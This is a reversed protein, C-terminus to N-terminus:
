DFDGAEAWGLTTATDLIGETTFDANGSVAGLGPYHKVAAGVQADRLGEIVAIGHEANGAADLGFDRDLAGIPANSARDGVVTGLVPALDVNIGAAALQSGWTGASLRLADASMTGQEVASPMTDFGTGTLHQVQGGEQDTSMLLQNDGPAYSQLTSTAAAVGAIGSNWNGIILVSGVHRNAILDYLSSPDSGAFLPAMVLQGVREEVSMSEVARVAKAHPSDDRVSPVQAKDLSDHTVTPRRTSFAATAADSPSADGSCAALTVPLM